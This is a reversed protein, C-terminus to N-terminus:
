DGASPSSSVTVGNRIRVLVFDVSKPATDSEEAPVVLTSVAALNMSVVRGEPLNLAWTADPQPFLFSGGAPSLRCALEHM